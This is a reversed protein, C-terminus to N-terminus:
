IEVKLTGEAKYITVPQTVVVPVQKGNQLAPKWKPMRQLIRLLENDFSVGASQSILFDALSGDERVQFQVIATKREGNNLEAVPKMNRNLFALMVQKGGPFAPQQIGPKVNLANAKKLETLLLAAQSRLKVANKAEVKIDDFGGASYKRIWKIDNTSLQEIDRFPFQYDHRYVPSLDGYEIPQVKQSVGTITDDNALLLVLRSGVDITNTGIGSGALRLQFATDMRLSVDMKIEPSAKLSVPFTEARWQKLTNDFANFKLKQAVSVLPLFFCLFVFPKMFFNIQRETSLVM